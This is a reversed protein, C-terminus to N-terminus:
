LGLQYRLEALVTQYSYRANVAAIAARTQALQAETLEVISSLGIQYRQQSLDLALNSENLMEETVGIREFADRANLVTTRVDRAINDELNRVQQQAAGARMKAAQEDANFLFGNFVPINIDAGAGGYWSSKYLDDRVPAGGTVAMATITPMWLDREAKTYEKAATYNDNLAALDPRQILAERVLPETNPPPPAPNAPTQDVLAYQRDQEFGLVDNLDAMATQEQDRADLLLLQAQSLQVQAFSLDVQSRLQAKTMSAVQEETAKREAVTKQAVNLVAEATLAHYFAQDVTLIIDLRTAAENELQAKATSESSLVLNHTHGFDTILQSVTLGGAAKDLLRSSQLDGVASMRSQDHSGVSELDGYATPMYASRAERAVQAQALSLLHAVSIHPNNRIAIQEAQHITLRPGKTAIPPTAAPMAPPPGAPMQPATTQALQAILQVNPQVKPANPLPAKQARATAPSICLLAAGLLLTGMDAPSNVRPYNNM